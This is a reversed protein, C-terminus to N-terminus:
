IYYFNSIYYDSGNWYISASSSYGSPLSVIAGGSDSITITNASHAPNLDENVIIWQQGTTMGSSPLTITINAVSVDTVGIIQDTILVNYDAAVGVYNTSFGGKAYLSGTSSNRKTQTTTNIKFSSNTFDLIGYKVTGSGTIVNTNSSDIDCFEIEVVTGAGVTIASQSDSEIRSYRIVTTSTSSTTVPIVARGGLKLSSWFITSTSSSANSIANTFDSYTINFSSDGTASSQAASLGSNTFVCKDIYITGHEISFYSIGTTGLNGYCNSLRIISSTSSTTSSIASNNTANIYCGILNVISAASGTISLIYDSNTQLRIGYISVTGATTMTMKGVITVNPTYADCEFACINVGVKLTLNETYTGPMVFITEGSSAATIASAITTYNGGAGSTPNVIYKAVHLDPIGGILDLNITGSGTTIALTNGTSTLTGVKIHPATTSGILLQGNTTVRSEVNNSGSGSFDVNDAYMVQITPDNVDTSFGPM